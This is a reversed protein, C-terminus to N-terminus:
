VLAHTYTFWPKAFAMNLFPKSFAMNLFTYIRTNINMTMEGRGRHIHNKDQECKGWHTFCRFLHSLRPQCNSLHFLPRHTCPPPHLLTRSSKFSVACLKARASETLYPPHQLHKSRNLPHLPPRSCPTVVNTVIKFQYCMTWNARASATMYKVSTRQTAPPTLGNAINLFQNFM